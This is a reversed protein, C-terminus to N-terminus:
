EVNIQLSGTMVDYAKQEQVPDNSACCSKYVTISANPLASKIMICNSLVCIDTVVGIVGVEQYDQDALYKALELSPFTNKEFTLCGQSLSALEGYLKHGETGKICHPVPLHIGEYTSMYDQGHTDLTFIVDDGNSQYEKIKAIIHDKISIAADNGLAGDVFDKQYDVVVLLKKM